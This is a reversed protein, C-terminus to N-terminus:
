PLSLGYFSVPVVQQRMHGLRAFQADRVPVEDIVVLRLPLAGWASVYNGLTKGLNERVLLVLPREAPFRMRAIAGALRQGIKRVEATGTSSLEVRLCGGRPCRAALELLEVLREESSSVSVIGLIPVDDLPLVEPCPMFLTSGSIEISHRLLGYVTARGATVPRHQALRQRWRPSALLRQALDIGLDGFHTTAPWPAGGLHAYILEGVGGSVTVACNAPQDLPRFPVQTHLQSIASPMALPEFGIACELLALYFDLVQEVEAMTLEAGNDATIGLHAFLARAFRSLKVIKYTGPIVQIHRAGVLLCGTTPVYGGHGLALNTTGGGIDLNLLPTEPLERSLASCSGMFALWSELCPDDATAILMNGLRRRLLAILDRANDKQATLGTLLAGGGFLEKTEVRGASLWGDVLTGIAHLDLKEGSLPTFVIESRYLEHINGLDTRGTVTNRQLEAAAVIASSTTTGFDLGVLKVLAAM